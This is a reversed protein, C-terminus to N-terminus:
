KEKSIKQDTLSCFEELVDVIAEYNKSTAKAFLLLDDVFFM